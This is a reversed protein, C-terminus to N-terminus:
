LVIIMNMSINYDISLLTMGSNNNNNNNHSYDVGECGNSSVWVRGDAVLWRRNFRGFRM